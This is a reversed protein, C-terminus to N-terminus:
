EEYGLWSLTPAIWNMMRQMDEDSAQGKRSGQGEQQFRSEYEEWVEYADSLECFRLVERILEPSFDELRCGM